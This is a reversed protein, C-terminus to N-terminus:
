LENLNACNVFLLEVFLPVVSSVTLHETVNKHMRCVQAFYVGCTQLLLRQMLKGQLVEERREHSRGWQMLNSLSLPVTYIDSTYDAEEGLLCLAFKSGGNAM